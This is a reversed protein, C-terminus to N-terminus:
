SLLQYGAVSPAPKESTATSSPAESLAQFEAPLQRGLLPMLPEGPWSGSSVTVGGRGATTMLSARVCSSSGAAPSAMSNYLVVPLETSMLPQNRVSSKLIGFLYVMGPPVGRM